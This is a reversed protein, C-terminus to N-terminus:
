RKNASTKYVRVYLIFGISCIKVVGVSRSSLVYLLAEVHLKIAMMVMMMMLM